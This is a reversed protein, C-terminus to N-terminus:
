LSKECLAEKLDATSEKLGQEFVSLATRATQLEYQELDTLADKHHDLLASISSLANHVSTRVTFRKRKFRREESTAM